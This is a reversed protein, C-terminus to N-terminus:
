LQGDEGADSVLAEGGENAAVIRLEVPSVWGPDRRLKIWIAEGEVGAESRAAYPAFFSGYSFACELVGRQGCMVDLAIIRTSSVIEFYVPDGSKLPSDSSTLNQIQIM